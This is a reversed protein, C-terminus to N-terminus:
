YPRALGAVPPTAEDPVPWSGFPLGSAGPAGAWHLWALVDQPGDEPALLGCGCYFEPATPAPTANVEHM